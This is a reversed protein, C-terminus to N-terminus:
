VRPGVASPVDRVEAHRGPRRSRRDTSELIRKVGGGGRRASGGVAAASHLRHPFPPTAARGARLFQGQLDFETRRPEEGRAGIRM